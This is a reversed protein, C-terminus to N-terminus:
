RLPFRTVGEDPFSNEELGGAVFYPLYAEVILEDVAIASETEQTLVEIMHQLKPEIRFVLTLILTLRYELTSDEDPMELVWLDDTKGRTGPVLYRIFSILDGAKNELKSSRDEIADREADRLNPHVRYSVLEGSIELFENADELFAQIRAQHALLVARRRQEAALGRTQADSPLASLVLSAALLCVTVKISFRKRM